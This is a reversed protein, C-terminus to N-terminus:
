QQYLIKLLGLGKRARTKVTGLPLRLLQATQEHSWGYFFIMDIVEAYKPDLQLARCKFDKFELDNSTTAIDYKNDKTISLLDISVQFSQRRYAASRLYDIALNQAVNLMWTFLSGRAPDFGDIHKWIKVFTEQLLDEALETRRVYKILVGFLAKSYNNYLINFGKESKSKILQVLLATEEARGQKKANMTTPAKIVRGKSVGTTALMTGDNLTIIFIYIVPAFTIPAIGM